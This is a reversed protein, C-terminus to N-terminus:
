YLYFGSVITRDLKLLAGCRIIASARKYQDPWARRHDSVQWGADASGAGANADRRCKIEEILDSGCAERGDGSAASLLYAM